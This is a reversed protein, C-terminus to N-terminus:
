DSGTGPGKAADPLPQGLRSDQPNAKLSDQEAAVLRVLLDSFAATRYPDQSLLAATGMAASDGWAARLSDLVADGLERDTYAMAKARELTVLRECCVREAATLDSTRLPRDKKACGVAAACFAACFVARVTLLIKTACINM